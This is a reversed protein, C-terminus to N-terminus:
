VSWVVIITIVCLLMFIESIAIKKSNKLSSFSKLSEEVEKQSMGNYYIKM